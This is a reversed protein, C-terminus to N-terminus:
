KKRYPLLSACLSSSHALWSHPRLCLTSKAQEVYIMECPTGVPLLSPTTPPPSDKVLIIGLWEESPHRPRPSPVSIKGLTIDCLLPINTVWSCHAWTHPVAADIGTDEQTDRCMSPHKIQTHKRKSPYNGSLFVCWNLNTHKFYDISNFKWHM